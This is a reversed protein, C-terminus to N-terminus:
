IICSPMLARGFMESDASNNAHQGTSRLLVVRTEDSLMIEAKEIRGIVPLASSGMGYFRGTVAVRAIGFKKLNNLFSDSNSNLPFVEIASFDLADCASNSSPYLLLTGRSSHTVFATVAVKKGHYKEPNSFLSHLNPRCSDRSGSLDACIKEDGSSVVNRREFDKHSYDTCAVLLMCFITFLISFNLIKM